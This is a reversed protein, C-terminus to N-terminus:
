VRSLEDKLGEVEAALSMLKESASSAGSAPSPMYQAADRMARAIRAAREARHNSRTEFSAMMDNYAIELDKFHDDTRFKVRIPHGEQKVRVMTNRLNYLPGAAKHSEFLVLSVVALLGVASALLVFLMQSRDQELIMPALEPAAAMVSASNAKQLMYLTVDLVVLLVLCLGAVGLIARSQYSGPIIFRRRKGLIGRRTEPTIGLQAARMAEDPAAQARNDQRREELVREM